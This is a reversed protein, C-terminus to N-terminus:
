KGPTPKGAEKLLADILEYKHEPDVGPHLGAHRVKGQCDIIAASPIGQIGFDPNFVDQKSFAVSWTMNMTKIFAPMMEFEVEPKGKTDTSKANGGEPGAYSIFAGQVSTVGLIVVDSEAYRKQLERVHPFSGICPGCWTAWFDLVVVKGKLDALSKPSGPLTSWLFEVSPAAHNLLEGKAHAGNIYARGRELWKKTPADTSADSLAADIVSAIKMRMADRQAAEVGEIGALCRVVSPLAAISHRHMGPGISSDLKLISEVVLAGTKPSLSGLSALVTERSDTKFSAAVGPHELAARFISATNERLRKQVDVPQDDSARETIFSTRLAAAIAGEAGPDKAIEALRDSIEANKGAFMLIESDQLKKIQALSARSLDITAIQESALKRVAAEDFSGKMSEFLDNMAKAAKDIQEDTPPAALAPAGCLSLVLWAAATRTHM